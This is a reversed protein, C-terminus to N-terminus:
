EVNIGPFNDINKTTPPKFNQLKQSLELIADNSMQITAASPEYQHYGLRYVGTTGDSTYKGSRGGFWHDVAISSPLTSPSSSEPEPYVQTFSGDNYKKKYITLSIEKSSFHEKEYEAIQTQDNILNQSSASIIDSIEKQPSPLEAFLDSGEELIFFSVPNISFAEGQLFHEQQKEKNSLNKYSTAKNKAPQKATFPIKDPNPNFGKIMPGYTKGGIITTM